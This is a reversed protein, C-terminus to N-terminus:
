AAPANGSIGEKEFLESVRVWFAPINEDEFYPDADSTCIRRAIAPYYKHLGNYLAQGRRTPWPTTAQWERAATNIAEFPDTPADDAM